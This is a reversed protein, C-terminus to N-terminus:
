TARRSADAPRLSLSLNWRELGYKRILAERQVLSWAPAIKNHKRAWWRAIRQEVFRDLKSLTRRRIRRFYERAGRIYANLHAVLGEQSMETAKTMRRLEERMRSRAKKSADLYVHGSKGTNLAHGLFEFRQRRSDVIRTKEAHLELGLKAMFNQIWKMEVSPVRPCMLVFDDAYRILRGRQRGSEVQRRFNRDLLHLYINALM